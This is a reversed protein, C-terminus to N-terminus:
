QPFDNPIKHPYADSWIDRSTHFMVMQFRYILQVQGNEIAINAPIHHSDEPFIIIIM